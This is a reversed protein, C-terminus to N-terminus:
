QNPKSDRLVANLEEKSARGINIVAVSVWIVVDHFMNYIIAWENENTVWKQFLKYASDNETRHGLAGFLVMQFIDHFTIKGKPGEAALMDLRLNLENRISRYENKWKESIEPDNCLENLRGISIDDKNQVFLRLNFLLSDTEERNPQYFDVQWKDGVKKLQFGVINESNKIYSYTQILEAREVFDELRKRSKPEM